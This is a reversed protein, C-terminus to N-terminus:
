TRKVKTAGDTTCAIRLRNFNGVREYDVSSAHARILPIGFGGPPAITLDRPTEPGSWRALDFAAGNDTVTGVASGPGLQIEIEIAPHSTWAFAYSVLNAFIENLCLKLDSALTPELKSDTFASDLWANLRIADSAIPKLSIRDTHM